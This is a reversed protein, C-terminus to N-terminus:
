QIEALLLQQTCKVCVPYEDRGRFVCGNQVFGYNAVIVRLLKRGYRRNKRMNKVIASSTHFTKFRKFTNDFVEQPASRVDNSGLTGPLRVRECRSRIHQIRILTCSESFVQGRGGYPVSFRSPHTECM